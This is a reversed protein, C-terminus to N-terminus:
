VHEPMAPSTLQSVTTQVTPTCDSLVFTDTSETQPLELWLVGSRVDDDGDVVLGRAFMAEVDGAFTGYGTAYAPPAGPASAGGLHTSFKKKM